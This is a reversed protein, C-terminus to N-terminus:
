VQEKLTELIIIRQGLPGDGCVCSCQYKKAEEKSRVIFVSDKRQLNGCHLSLLTDELLTVYDILRSM